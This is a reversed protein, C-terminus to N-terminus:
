GGLTGCGFLLFAGDIEAGFIGCFSIDNVVCGMKGGRTRSGEGGGARACSGRANREGSEEYGIANM